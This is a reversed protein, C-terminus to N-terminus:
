ELELIRTMIKAVEWRTIPQLPRFNWDKYGNIIWLKNARVIYKAYWEDPHVDFFQSNLVPTVEIASAKLAAKVFEARTINNYPQFSWDKYWGFAWEQSLPYLYKSYWEDKEVDSFQKTTPYEATFWFAKALVKTVELRTINNDPRFSDDEKYWSVIDACAVKKISDEFQHWVIDWFTKWCTTWILQKFVRDTNFIPEKINVEFSSIKLVNSTNGADDVVVLTCNSYVWDLLSSFEGKSVDEINRFGISTLKIENNGEKANIIISACDWWYIITWAETTHFTYSPKGDENPSLVQTIETLTPAITDGTTDIEFESITLVESMNWAVDTVTIECDSYTGDALENFTITNDWETAEITTSSCSWSYTITWTETTNFTYDPTNDSTSNAVITVETLEPATIDPETQVLEYAWIDYKGGQPRSIWEFDVTLSSVTQGADKAKSDSKIKFYEPSYIDWIEEFNPKINYIDNTWQAYSSPKWQGWLNNAFYYSGETASDSIGIPDVFDSQWIINNYIKVWTNEYFEDDDENQDSAMILITNSAWKNVFTNNYIESDQLWANGESLNEPTMVQLAKNCNSVINNYIKLDQSRNGWRRDTEVLVWDEYYDYPSIYEEWIWIWLTKKDVWLGSETCYIFNSDVEIEKSNDLYLNASYNDWITNNKVATWEARMAIWAGWNHYIKNNELIVRDSEKQVKLASWWNANSRAWDKNSMINDHIECNKVTVDDSMEVIIWHWQCGHVELDSINIHEPHYEIESNGYDWVIICIQSTYDTDLGKVEFWEFDFYDWGIAVVISKDSQILPKSTNGSYSRLTIPSWEIWWNTPLKPEGDEPTRVSEEYTWELVEIIDWPALDPNELSATITKFPWSNWGGSCDIALGDNDDSACEENTAVYYTNGEANALFNTSFFLFMLVFLVWLGKKMHLYKFLLLKITDYKNKKHFKKYYESKSNIVRLIKIVM